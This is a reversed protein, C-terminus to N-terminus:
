CGSWSLRSPPSSARWMRRCVFYGLALIPFAKIAAATAVLVGAPAERGLRLCAFAALLLTLLTLNPQGLLYTNHILAIICLSPAAALLPHQRVGKVKGGTALWVSLAIAGIWAASHALVLVLTTAHKGLISLVRPDGGGLAPVHVPLAPGHRPRPLHEDGPPDGGGGPVM